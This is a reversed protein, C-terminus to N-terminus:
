VASTQEKRKTPTLADGGAIPPLGELKRVDNVTLFGAELGDRHARYRSKTDLRLFADLNFRVTQRGPLVESWATEIERLVKMATFQLYGRWEEIVNQYTRSGGQIAILLLSAPVGFLRAIQTTSFQQTELFQVDAPKLMLPEYALGQGLVRVGYGDPNDNWVEKYQDASEKTIVQDTTLVGSPMNGESLWSAGYDRADLAGEIEARAAQIPGLGYPHGPVRMLKLHKIDAAPMISGRYRHIPRDTDPDIQVTVERPNLPKLNIIKGPTRATRDARVKKWYANGTLWLSNNIYEVFAEREEDVDPRRVLAPTEELRTDGRYVDVGLQIAATAHIQVARYVTGLSLARDESTWGLLHRPPPAIHRPRDAGGEDGAERTAFGFLAAARQMVGM